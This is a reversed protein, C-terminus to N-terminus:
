KCIAIITTLDDAQEGPNFKLIQHLSESPGLGKNHRLL